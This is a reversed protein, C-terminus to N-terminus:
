ATKAKAALHRAVGYLWNAVSEEKGLSGSKQALLLFTAQFADEADQTQKLVRRCVGLVMAGHRSVLEGFAAEDHQRSFSELLARDPPSPHKILKRIEGLIGASSGAM